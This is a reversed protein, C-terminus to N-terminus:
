GIHGLENEPSTARAPPGGAGIGAGLQGLDRGNLGHAVLNGGSHPLSRGLKGNGPRRLFRRGGGSGLTSRDGSARMVKAAGM